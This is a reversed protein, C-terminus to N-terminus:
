VATNYIGPSCEYRNWLECVLFYDRTQTGFHAHGGHHACLLRPERPLLKVAPPPTKTRPVLNDAQCTQLHIVFVVYMDVRVRIVVVTSFNVVVRQGTLESSADVMVLHDGGPFILSCFM